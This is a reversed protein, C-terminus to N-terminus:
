TMLTYDHLKKPDMIADDLLYQAAIFHSQDNACVSSNPGISTSSQSDSVTSKELVTTYLLTCDVKWTEFNKKLKYNEHMLTDKEYMAADRERVVADRERVVADYKRMLNDYETKWDKIAM